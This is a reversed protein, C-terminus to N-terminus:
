ITNQLFLNLLLYNKILIKGPHLMDCKYIPVNIHVIMNFGMFIAKRISDFVFVKTLIFRVCTKNFKELKM